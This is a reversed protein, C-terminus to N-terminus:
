DIKRHVQPSGNMRLRGDHRAELLRHEQWKEDREQRELKQKQREELHPERERARLCLEVRQVHGDFVVQIFLWSSSGERSRTRARKSKRCRRQAPAAWPCRLSRAPLSRCSAFLRTAAPTAAPPPRM